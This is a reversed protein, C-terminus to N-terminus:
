VTESLRKLSYGTGKETKVKIKNRICPFLVLDKFKGFKLNTAPNPSITQEIKSEIKNENESAKPEPQRHQLRCWLDSRNGEAEFPNEIEGEIAQVVYERCQSRSEATDEGVYSSLFWSYNINNNRKGLYGYGTLITL